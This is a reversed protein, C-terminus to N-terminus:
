QGQLCFPLQFRTRFESDSLRLQFRFRFYAFVCRRRTEAEAPTANAKATVWEPQKLKRKGKVVKIFHPLMLNKIIHMWDPMVDWIINFMPLLSLACVGNVGSARRPHNENQWLLMSDQSEKADRAVSAPTREAPAVDTGTRLPNGPDLWREHGDFCHRRYARQKPWCGECWHCAKSGQHAM